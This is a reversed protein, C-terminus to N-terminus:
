RWSRCETIFPFLRRTSRVLIGLTCFIWSTPSGPPEQCPCLTRHWFGGEWQAPWEQSLVVRSQLIAKTNLCSLSSAVSTPSTPLHDVGTKYHFGGAKPYTAVLIDDPRAQFNQVDDWNDTFYKTMSVGHFDFLAPRPLKEMQSRAMISVTMWPWNMYRWDQIYKLEVCRVPLGKGKSENVM